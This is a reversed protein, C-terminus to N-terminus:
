PPPAALEGALDLTVTEGAGAVIRRRFRRAGHDTTVALEVTATGDEIRVPFSSRGSADLGGREFFGVPEDGVFVDARVHRVTPAAAGFDLVVTVQGSDKRHCTEYALVGLAVFFVVPALVRRFRDYRPRETM